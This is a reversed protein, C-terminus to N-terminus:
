VRFLTFTGPFDSNQNLTISITNSDLLVATGIEMGFTTSFLRATIGDVTYTGQDSLGHITFTWNTATLVVTATQGQITGRWTGSLGGGGTGNNSGNNCSMVSFGIAAILVVIGFLKFNNKM